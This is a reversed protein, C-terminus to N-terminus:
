YNQIFSILDDSDDDPPNPVTGGTLLTGIQELKHLIKEQMQTDTLRSEFSRISNQIGEPDLQSTLYNIKELAESSKDNKQIFDM